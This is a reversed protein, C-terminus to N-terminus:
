LELGEPPRLACEGRATRGDGTTAFVALRGREWMRRLHASFFVHLRYRVRQGPAIWVPLRLAIDAPRSGRPVRHSEDGLVRKADLEPQGACLAIAQVAHVSTPTSGRNVFDVQLDVYWEPHGSVPRVEANRLSVVLGLRPVRPRAAGLIAFVLFMVVGVLILALPGPPM